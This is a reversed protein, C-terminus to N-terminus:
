NKLVRHYELFWKDIAKLRSRNIRNFVSSEVFKRGQINIIDVKGLIGVINQTSFQLM